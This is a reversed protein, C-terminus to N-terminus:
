FPMMGSTPPQVCGHCSYDYQGEELRVVHGQEIRTGCYICPRPSELRYDRDEDAPGLQDPTPGTKRSSVVPVRHLPTM